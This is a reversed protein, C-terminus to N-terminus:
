SGEYGSHGGEAIGVGTALGGIRVLLFINLIGFELFLDIVEDCEHFM